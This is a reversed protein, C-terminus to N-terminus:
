FAGFLNEAFSAMASMPVGPMVLRGSSLFDFSAVEAMSMQQECLGVKKKTRAPDRRQNAGGRSTREWQSDDDHQDDDWESKGARRSGTIRADVHHDAAGTTHRATWLDDREEALHM